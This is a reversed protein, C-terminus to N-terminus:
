LKCHSTGSANTEDNKQDEETGLNSLVANWSAHGIELKTSVACVRRETEEKTLAFVRCILEEPEKQYIDACWGRELHNEYQRPISHVFALGNRNFKM